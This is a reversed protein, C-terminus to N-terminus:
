TKVFESFLVIQALEQTRQLSERTGNADDTISLECQVLLMLSQVNRQWETKRRLELWSLTKM